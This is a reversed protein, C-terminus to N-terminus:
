STTTTDTPTESPPAAQQGVAAESESSVVDGQQTLAQPEEGEDAKEAAERQSSWVASPTIANLRDRTEQTAKTDPKDDTM